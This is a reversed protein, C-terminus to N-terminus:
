FNLLQCSVVYHSLFRSHCTWHAGPTKITYAHTCKLPYVSRICLQGSAGSKWSREGNLTLSLLSGATSEAVVALVRFVSLSLSLSLPPPPSLSLPQASGEEGMGGEGLPRSGTVVTRHSIVSASATLRAKNLCYILRSELQVALFM